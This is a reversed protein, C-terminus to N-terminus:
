IYIYINVYMNKRIHQNLHDPGSNMSKEPPVQLQGPKLMAVLVLVEHFLNTFYGGTCM